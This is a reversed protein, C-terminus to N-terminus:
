AELDCLLPTAPDLIDGQTTCISWARQVPTGDPAADDSVIRADRVRVDLRAGVRWPLTSREITWHNSVSGISIECDVLDQAATRSPAERVMEGLRRGFGTATPRGRAYMFREGARVLIASAGSGVDRLSVAATPAEDDQRHWHELYPADYGHEILVGDRDSLRGRDDHPSPPQFDILRTWEFHDAHQVLTGAFGEQVALSAAQELTLARLCRVDMGPEGGPQRLDVYLSPGQLWDVATSTDRRGDGWAILSRRWHGQLREIHTM